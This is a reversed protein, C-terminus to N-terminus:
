TDVAGICSLLFVHHPLVWLPSIQVLFSLCVSFDAQFLDMENPRDLTKQIEFSAKFKMGYKQMSGASCTKEGGHPQVLLRTVPCSTDLPPSIVSILLEKLM